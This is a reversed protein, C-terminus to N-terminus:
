FGVTRTVKATLLRELVGSAVAGVGRRETYVLFLDSLPAHVFNMRLNTVVQEQVDNYQVFASGFLSRSHSYRLRAGYVDATFRSDPFRIENHDASVDLSLRYSARWAGTLGVSRREGDFFDGGSVSLGGAFARGASSRYSASAEQFAYSGPSVLASGVPFGTEVREFRDSVGFRLGGGDLFGIELGATGTRTDLRENSNTIYDGEVYPNVEQVLPVRPRLHAGLTLYSHHMGNRRIFGVAPSFAADVRKHMASVNWVQDRWGAAIRGAFGAGEAPNDTGALYSTVVLNGLFRGNADVGWSRAAGGSGDMPRRDVLMGGLHLPGASRRVRAVAFNEAAGGSTAETGMDLIGFEYAGVRGTMRAGGVIPVLQGDRLGIRRSHFLSFDRLSAGMRYERESVDGFTFVGSNEVFFDRKEPFFLSFRTLNVREQDVEVQSFDTRYSLDLTVKPTVSYKLDVGAGLAGGRTADPTDPGSASSSSLYPTLTLNRGSRLGRIGILTGAKSMRHVPDRRDLPAWYSDENIRRVRRLLNLGFVQEERTPDFRLGTWPIAMELSWGWDHIRTEVRTAGDWAFNVSRSDDFTQGDRLAGRPNILYIFSDKRDHFTDLTVGFIDYDRTSEGPFDRELTSVVMSEPRSDFLLAGIYLAEGDYLIRVVTPQTALRGAHPQSQVFGGLSDAQLWAAEDLLGDIRVSGSARVARASPRPAADVNMVAASAGGGGEGAEQGPAAAPSTTLLVIALIAGAIDGRDTLHM